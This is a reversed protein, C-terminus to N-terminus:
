ENKETQQQCYELLIRLGNVNADMTKIPHLRYYYPSAISAAHIIYQFNDVEKPLSATIDHKVLTLNSDEYWDTLWNPIGRIFNDYVTLQIHQITDTKRNWYRIAQTLYHGLFGAGGTLLVKKGAIHLFVDRLCTYIYELDENIINDLNRM